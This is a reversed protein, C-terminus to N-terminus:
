RNYYETILQINFIHEIDEKNPLRKVEGSLKSKDLSLWKPPRYQKLHETIANKLLDKQSQQRVSIVDGVKLEYSPIDIRRNNVTLHGHGALQRAESRSKALGLRFAANDLRMELKQLLFDGTVGKKSKVVDFYKRLQKERLGYSIKLKQKEKLRIGYDSVKGRKKDVGHQGPPNSNRIMSCKQSYCREKKLFLKEGLQRCKKCKNDIM